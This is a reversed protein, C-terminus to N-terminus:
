RSLDALSYRKIIVLKMDIMQTKKRFLFMCERKISTLSYKNLTEHVRLFVLGTLELFFDAVLAAAGISQNGSQLVSENSFVRISPLISPLLLLPHCLILYNSLMVSEISMLKLLSQSVTFSLSAQTCLLGRPRLSDSM